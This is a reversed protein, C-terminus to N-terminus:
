GTIEKKITPIISQLSYKEKILVQGERGIQTRLEVDKLIRALSDAWEQTTSALFGNEGNKILYNAEGVTSAVAPVSCAMYEIAKFACKARNFPTDKLPMLGVDFEYSRIAEPVAKPNGWELEDVFVVEYPTGQFFDKLPQHNQAGLIIFRFKSNQKYVELLADKIVAFNGQKFHARGNGIWGITYIDKVRHTIAYSGYVEADVVTPIFIYNKNYRKAWTLIEHSGCFVKDAISALFISKLRSHLWEADDLDYVLKKRFFIKALFILVLVDWPFLSKHVVVLKNRPTGLKHFIDVLTSFRKPSLSWFSHNIGAVITSFLGYERELREAIQWVRQRSSGTNKNGKTFFLISLEQM